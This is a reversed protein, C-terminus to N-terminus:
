RTYVQAIYLASFSEVLSPYFKSDAGLFLDLGIAFYGDGISTQAQFGSFYAYVKPLRKQPYYYKIRKFADTLEADQKDLTLILPMLMM